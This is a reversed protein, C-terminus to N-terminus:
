HNLKCGSIVPYCESCVIKRKESTFFEGRWMLTTEVYALRRGNGEIRLPSSMIQKDELKFGCKSCWADFTVPGTPHKKGWGEHEKFELCDPHSNM